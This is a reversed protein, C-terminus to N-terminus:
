LAYKIKKNRKKLFLIHTEFIPFFNNMMLYGEQRSTRKSNKIEILFLRGTLPTNKFNSNFTLFPPSYHHYFLFDRAWIAIEPKFHTDPLFRVRM